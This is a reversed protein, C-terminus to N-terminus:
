STLKAVNNAIDGFAAGRWSAPYLKDLASLATIDDFTRDHNNRFLQIPERYPASCRQDADVQPFVHGNAVLIFDLWGSHECRRFVCNGM